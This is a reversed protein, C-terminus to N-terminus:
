LRPFALPARTKPHPASRRVAFRRNRPRRRGCRGLARDVEQRRRARGGVAVARVPRRLLERPPLRRQPVADGTGPQPNRSALVGRARQVGRTEAVVLRAKKRHRKLKHAVAGWIKESAQLRDGQDIMEQAHALLAASHAAHDTIPPPLTIMPEATTADAM